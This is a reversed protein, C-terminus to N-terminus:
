ESRLSKVPNARAAKVSKYGVTMWAILLTILIAASFVGVGMNVRYAFNGLWNNMFYWALPAAVLFAILILLTFERSFLFVINKVSAGLVKRVGVEKVKQVAMFSVLGYLGLCSILIALGAFIKYLLSLQNEQKYFENINDDLFYSNTAYEPYFKDWTRQVADKTALLNSSRIKIASVSYYEKYSGLMIPKTEERLSNTKFDKVVGCIPRWSGGGLRIEKGIALSPDSIRLKKMLTENIIVERTTDSQVYSRGALLQLGFTKLYDEDGFKLFVHFNEDPKHDFSFNTSWNNESSPVDSSFSVAQVGNIGLLEQKLASQKSRVVSDANSNMVWVAEKNFGLDANRVYSMQSVAVITGIILIQSIAFQTVVLGRRLSLGGVSASTIKNKLALMPRFGSVILAPYAGSFITVVIVIVLTFLMVPVTFLSLTENISAVHKIYPLSLWALCLGLVAGAIVIIATEGMMQWFLSSRRSGLVKRIGIEKSRTVAQATALNIFNICAMIIIFVGILSLTWLTTHSITHDGLNEVRTDFHVENLPQLFNARVQTTSPKYYKKAFSKLQQDVQGATINDPLRMFLQFNSTTSGWETSYNYLSPNSKSTILSTMVGLPFDTNAPVDELIGSVRLTLANDLRLYQGVASEWNGFYKTAMKKTLVTVDPQELVKPSGVAWRYEFVRFFEPDAFFVGTEEIFKSTSAANPDKGLVTIQAGYTSQLAGTTINPMDVRLADLAPFPIGPTYDIGDGRNDQTIVHYISKHGPLFQDYSKEYRVVLFLLLCSAIGIALGFVNLFTFAKHRAINRIAIKLYNRIM